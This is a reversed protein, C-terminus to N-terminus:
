PKPRPACGATAQSFRSHRYLNLLPNLRNRRILTFLPCLRERAADAELAASLGQPVFVVRNFVACNPM